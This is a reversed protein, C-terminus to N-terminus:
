NDVFFVKFLYSYFIIRLLKRGNIHSDKTEESNLEVSCLNCWFTKKNKRAGFGEHLRTPLGAAEIEDQDVISDDIM